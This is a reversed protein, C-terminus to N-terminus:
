SLKKFKSIYSNAVHDPNLKLTKAYQYVFGRVYALAPLNEINEEELNKLYTKSIKTMNSMRVISVDKYERIQRLFEGTFYECAEIQEEMEPDVVYELAFRNIAAIKSVQADKYVTHEISHSRKAARPEDSPRVKDKDFGRARDYADRKNPETLIAYAEEVLQSMANCKDETMVSHLAINEVLYTNKARQYAESIEEETSNHSIELIDYYDGFDNKEKFAHGM